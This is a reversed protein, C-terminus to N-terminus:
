VLEHSFTKLVAAAMSRPDTGTNNCVDISVHPRPSRWGMPGGVLGDAEFQPRTNGDRTVHVHVMRWGTREMVEWELPFRFDTVVFRPPVASEQIQVMTQVALRAFVEPDRERERRGVQILVDRWTRTDTSCSGPHVRAAKGEQTHLVQVDIGFEQAVLTKLGDAFAVRVFGGMTALAEGLTDKGAGALGSVMVVVIDDKDKENREM